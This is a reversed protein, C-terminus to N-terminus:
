ARRMMLVAGLVLPLIFASGCGGGGTEWKREEANKDFAQVQGLGSSQTVEVMEGGELDVTHGYRDPVTVTGEVAKVAAKKSANDYYVSFKTGKVGPVSVTTEIEFRMGERNTVDSFLAGNVLEIIVDLSTASPPHYIKVMTMETEEDLFIKCGDDLLITAKSGKGTRVSNDESLPIQTAVRAWEGGPVKVYTDGDFASL